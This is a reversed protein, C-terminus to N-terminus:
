LLMRDLEFLERIKQVAHRVWVVLVWGAVAVWRLLTVWLLAVRRLCWLVTFCWCAVPRWMAGVGETWRLLAAKLYSEGSGCCGYSRTDKSVQREARGTRHDTRRRHYSCGALDRRISHTEGVALGEHIRHKGLDKGAIMGAVAAMGLHDSSGAADAAVAATDFHDLSGEVGVAALSGLGSHM